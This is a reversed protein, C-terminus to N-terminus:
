PPKPPFNVKLLLKRLNSVKTFDSLFEKWYQDIKLLVDWKFFCLLFSRPIDVKIKVWEPPQDLTLRSFFYKDSKMLTNLNLFSKYFFGGWFTLKWGLGGQLTPQFFIKTLNWLLMGNIKMKFDDNFSKAVSAILMLNGLRKEGKRTIQECDIETPKPFNQGRMNFGWNRWPWRWLWPKHKPKM